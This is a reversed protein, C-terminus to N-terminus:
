WRHPVCSPRGDRGYRAAIDAAIVAAPMAQSWLPLAIARDLM